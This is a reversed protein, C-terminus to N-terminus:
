KSFGSWLAWVAVVLHLINDLTELNAGLFNAGLFFGSITAIAAVLGALITVVKNLGNNKVFYVLILAVLGIVLHAWNEANDFWWLAGFISQNATPGILFFGLIGVVVLVWGGWMLFNKPTFFGV